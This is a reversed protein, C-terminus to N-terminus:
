LGLFFIGIWINIGYIFECACVTGRRGRDVHWQAGVGLSTSLFFVLLLLIIMWSHALLIKEHIM